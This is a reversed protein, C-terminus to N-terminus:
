NKEEGKLSATPSFPSVGTKASFPVTLCFRVNKNSVSTDHSLVAGEPPATRGRRAPGNKGKPAPATRECSVTLPYGETLSRRRRDIVTAKPGGGPYGPPPAGEPTDQLPHGGGGVPPGLRRSNRSTSIRKSFKLLPTPKPKGLPRLV